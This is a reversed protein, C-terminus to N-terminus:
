EALGRQITQIREKVQDVRGDITSQVLYAGGAFLLALLLAPVGLSIARKSATRRSAVYWPFAILWLLVQGLAWGVPGTKLAGKADKRGYGYRAADIGVIVASGLIVVGLAAYFLTKAGEIVSRAEILMFEGSVRSWAFYLLGLGIVPLLVLPVGLVDSPDQAPKVSDGGAAGLAKAKAAAFDADSLTGSEHLEKLKILEDAISM